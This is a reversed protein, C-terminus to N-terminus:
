KQGKNYNNFISDIENILIVSWNEFDLSSEKIREINQFEDQIHYGKEGISYSENSLEVFYVLGLHQSSVSRSDDYLLGIPKMKYKDVIDVEEILERKIWPMPSNPDFPNFLGSIDEYTIHGGFLISREGHLRSEPARKSRIHTIIEGNFFIVFVSILQILTFDKEAEYRVKQKCNVKFWDAPIEKYTLGTDIIIESLKEKDFVALYENMRLEQSKEFIYEEYKDPSEDLWSRLGYTGKQLRVFKSEEGFKDIDTAIRSRIATKPTKGNFIYLNHNSIYTLLEEATKPENSRKLSLAIVKLLTLNNSNSVM